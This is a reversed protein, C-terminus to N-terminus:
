RHDNRAHDLSAEKSARRAAVADTYLETTFDDAGIGLESMVSRVDDLASSLEKEEPVMTEVELFTGDVEPVQVLTALMSRGRTTFEYNRCQKQFTLAPVYGLGRLMAHVAEPNDVPTEHEPKSGSEPDIRTGKYTLVSRTSTPGHITRVRLEQDRADLSGSRDDYYTDQYVEVQGETMRELQGMVYEPDHVRAKVEAEIM